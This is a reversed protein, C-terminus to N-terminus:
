EKMRGNVTDRVYGSPHGSNYVLMAVQELNAAGQPIRARVGRTAKTQAASHSGDLAHHAQAQVAYSGFQM